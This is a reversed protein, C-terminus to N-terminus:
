EGFMKKTESVINAITKAASYDDRKGDELYEHMRNYVVAVVERDVLSKMLFDKRRDKYTITKAYPNYVVASTSGNKSARVGNERTNTMIRFGSKAAAYKFAEIEKLQEETLPAAKPMRHKKLKAALEGDSRAGASFKDWCAAHPMMNQLGLTRAEPIANCVVLYCPEDTKIYQGCIPCRRADVSKYKIIRPDEKGLLWM